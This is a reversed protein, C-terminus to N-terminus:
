KEDKFLDELYKRDIYIGLEGVIDIMFGTGDINKYDANWEDLLDIADEYSATNRLNKYFADTFSKLMGSHRTQELEVRNSLYDLREQMAEILLEQEITLKELRTKTHNFSKM